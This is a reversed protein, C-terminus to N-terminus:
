ARPVVVRVGRTNHPLHATTPHWQYNLMLGAYGEYSKKLSLPIISRVLDEYIDLFPDLELYAAL